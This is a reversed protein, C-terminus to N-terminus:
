KRGFVKKLGQKMGQLADKRRSYHDDAELSEPRYRMSFEDRLGLPTPPPAVEWKQGVTTTAISLSRRHVPCSGDPKATIDISASTSRSRKHLRSRHPNFIMTSVAHEIGENTNPRGSASLSRRHLSFSSPSRKAPTNLQEGSIILKDALDEKSPAKLNFSFPTTTNRSSTFPDNAVGRAEGRQASEKSALISETMAATPLDPYRAKHYRAFMSSNSVSRRYNRNSTFNGFSSSPTIIGRPDPLNSAFQGFSSSPTMTTGRSTPLDGTFQGFSSSPTMAMERFIPSNSHFPTNPTPVTSTPPTAGSSPTCPINGHERCHPTSSWSNYAAPSGIASNPNYGTTSPSISPHFISSPMVSPSGISSASLRRTISPSTSSPTANQLSPVLTTDNSSRLTSRQPTFTATYETEHGETHQDNCLNKSVTDKIMKGLQSSPHEKMFIQTFLSKADQAEPQFLSRPKMTIQHRISDGAEVEHGERDDDEFVSKSPFDNCIKSPQSSSRPFLKSRWLPHIQAQSQDIPSDSGTQFHPQSEATKRMEALVATSLRGKIRSPDKLNAMTAASLTSESSEADVPRHRSPKISEFQSKSSPNITLKLTPPVLPPGSTLTSPETQPVQLALMSDCREGAESSNQLERPEVSRPTCHQPQGQELTLTSALPDESEELIDELPGSTKWSVIDSDTDAKSDEFTPPGISRLSDNESDEFTNQCGIERDIRESGTTEFAGLAKSSEIEENLAHALANIRPEAQHADEHTEKNRQPSHSLATQLSDKNLLCTGDIRTHSGDHKGSHLQFGSLEFAANELGLGIPEKGYAVAPHLESSANGLSNPDDCYKRASLIPICVVDLDTEEDHQQQLETLDLEVSEHRYQCDSKQWPCTYSQQHSAMPKFSASDLHDQREDYQQYLVSSQEERFALSKLGVSEQQRQGHGHKESPVSECSATEQGKRNGNGSFLPTQQRQKRLILPNPLEKEQLVSTSLRGTHFDNMAVEIGLPWGDPGKFQASARSMPTSLLNNTCHEIRAPSEFSDSIDSYAPSRSRPQLPSRWLTGEWESAPESHSNALDKVVKDLMDHLLSTNADFYQSPDPKPMTPHPKECHFAKTRNPAKGHHISDKHPPYRQLLEITTM